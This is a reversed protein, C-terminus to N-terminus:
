GWTRCHEIGAKLRNIVEEPGLLESVDFMGPGQMRGAVFLRYLPMVQGVKMNHAQLVSNFSSEFGQKSSPHVKALHEIYAEIVPAAESRWRKKLEEVAAV